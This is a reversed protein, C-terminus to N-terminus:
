LASLPGPGLGKLDDPVPSDSGSGSVTFYSTAVTSREHPVFGELVEKFGGKIRM